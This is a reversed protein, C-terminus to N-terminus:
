NSGRSAPPVIGNLRYYVVLNGYHEGAHEMQAMWFSQQSFMQNGFPFKIPLAMGEDGAQQILAAGEEVSKKLVAVVEAKSAYKERSFDEEGMKQGRATDIFLYSSGAIHLLMEAFTRVEPTPRYDYKDEPFDEAMTILKGGVHNWMRLVEQSPGAAPAPEAEQAGVAGASVGLLATLVIWFTIKGM